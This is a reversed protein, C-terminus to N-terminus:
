SQVILARAVQVGRARAAEVVVGCQTATDAIVEAAIRAHSQVDIVNAALRGDVRAVETPQAAAEGDGVTESASRDGRTASEARSGREAGPASVTAPLATMMGDRELVLFALGTGPGARLAEPSRLRPAAEGRALGAVVHDARLVHQGDGDPVLVIEGALEGDFGVAAEREGQDTADLGAAQM